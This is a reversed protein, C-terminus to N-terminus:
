APRRKRMDEILRDFMEKLGIRAEWGLARLKGTDLNMRLTPMYGYSSIDEQRIVVDIRGGACQGAALRAMEYVSCYTEENAANYAEGPRGKCLVTLVADAADETYLYSRRTEGATRLVIDRNEIVCRAFEAFVRGDDYRVGPGFTQTLRVAKAPVQYEKWYAACLNECLRKSEPYCFRPNMPDLCAAHTEGIKEDTEQVGYVEMSSLFVFSKVRNIRSFELARMTGDLSSRIIEVPEEAFAKSSTAAAAHVVLDVNMPTLPLDRVDSELVSFRGSFDFLQDAKKRDRVLAIINAGLEYARKVLAQGILGSAGTILLTKDQLGFDTM